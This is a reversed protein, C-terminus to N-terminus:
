FHQFVVCFFLMKCCEMEKKQSIFVKSCRFPSVTKIMCASQISISPYSSFSSPWQSKRCTFNYSVRRGTSPCLNWLKPQTTSFYSSSQWVDTICDNRLLPPHQATSVLTTIMKSSIQEKKDRKTKKSATTKFVDECFLFSLIVIKSKQRGVVTSSPEWLTDRHIVQSGIENFFAAFHSLHYWNCFREIVSDKFAFPAQFFASTTWSWAHWTEWHRVFVM